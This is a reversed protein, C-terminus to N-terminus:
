EPFHGAGHEIDAAARAAEDDTQTAPADRREADVRRRHGNRESSPTTRVHELSRDEILQWAFAPPRGDHEEIAVQADPAVGYAEEAATPRQEPRVTPDEDLDLWRTGSPPGAPGPELAPRNVASPKWPRHHASVCHIPNGGRCM